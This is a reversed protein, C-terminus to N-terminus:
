PRGWYDVVVTADSDADRIMKLDKLSHVGWVRMTNGYYWITGTTDKVPATSGDYTVRINQSLVQIDAYLVDVTITAATLTTASDSVTIQERAVHRLIM